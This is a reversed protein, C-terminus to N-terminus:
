VAWSVTARRTDDKRAHATPAQAQCCGVRVKFDMDGHHDEMGQIDTLLLANGYSSSHVEVAPTGPAADAGAAALHTDSAAPAAAAAPQPHLLWSGYSNDGTSSDGTSTTPGQASGALQPPAASVLGVSVGAALGAVPVGAARLALSGACVAAMSSSGSSSLTDTTVRVAFPFEEDTPMLALLGARALSGHGVERRSPVGARGLEGVSFPPFSYHLYLRGGTAGAQAAPRAAGAPPATARPLSGGSSSPGFLTEM